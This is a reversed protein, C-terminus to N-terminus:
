EIDNGRQLSYSELRKHRVLLFEELRMLTWNVDLKGIDADGGATVNREAIADVPYLSRQLVTLLGIPPQAPGSTVAFGIAIPQNNVFLDRDRDVQSASFRHHIELRLTQNSRWHLRQDYHCVAISDRRCLIHAPLYGDPAVQRV